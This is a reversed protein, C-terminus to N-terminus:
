QIIFRRLELNEWTLLPKDLSIGMKTFDSVASDSGNNETVIDYWYVPVGSRLLEVVAVAGDPTDITAIVKRAPFLYKDAYRTVIVANDSTQKLIAARWDYYQVVTERVQYLGEFKFFVSKVSAGLLTIGILVAVIKGSWNWSYILSILYSVLPISLVYLPLFYRVQSSGISVQGALNDTFQWSGYYLALWLGLMGLGLAYKFLVSFQKRNAVLFGFGLLATVVWPLFLKLGYRYMTKVIVLANFGFPLFIAQLWYIGQPGSTILGTTGDAAPRVYGSGLWSGYFVFQTLFFIVTMMGSGLGFLFVRKFNLFERNYYGSLGILGFMWVWESPRVFLALGFSLGIAFFRAWNNNKVLSCWLGALVFFVFITNAQLPRSAYYWWPPLVLLTLAGIFATRKDLGLARIIGFMLWASLVAVLPTIKVVLWNFSNEGFLWVMPRIISSMVAIFGPFGIPVLRGEVVTMSRPHVQSLSVEALPEVIGVKGRLSWEKIFAYNAMEDPQNFILTETGEGVGPLGQYLFGYLGFFVLCVAGLVGEPWYKVGGAKTRAPSRRPLCEKLNRM